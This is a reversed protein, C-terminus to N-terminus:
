TDLANSRFYGAGGFERAGRQWLSSLEGSEPPPPNITNTNSRDQVRM